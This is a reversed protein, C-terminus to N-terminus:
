GQETRVADNSGGAISFIIIMMMMLHLHHHEHHQHTCSSSSPLHIFRLSFKPNRLAKMEARTGKWARFVQDFWMIIIIIIIILHLSVIIIILIICHRHHCNDVQAKKGVLKRPLVKRIRVKVVTCLLFKCEVSFYLVDIDIDLVDWHAIHYCHHYQSRLSKPFPAFFFISSFSVFTLKIYTHTAPFPSIANKCM